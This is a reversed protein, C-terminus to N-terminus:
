VFGGKFKSGALVGLEDPLNIGYDGNKFEIIKIVDKEGPKDLEYKKGFFYIILKDERQYGYEIKLEDNSFFDYDYIYNIKLIKGDEKKIKQSYKTVNCLHDFVKEEERILDGVQGIIEGSIIIKSKQKSIKNKESKNHKSYGIGPWFRKEKGQDEAKDKREASGYLLHFTPKLFHHGDPFLKKDKLLIYNFETQSDKLLHGCLGKEIFKKNHVATLIRNYSVKEQALNLKYQEAQKDVIDMGELYYTKIEADSMGMRAGTLSDILPNPICLGISTKEKLLKKCYEKDFYQALNNLYKNLKEERHETYSPLLIRNYYKEKYFSRMLREDYLDIELNEVSVTKDGKDFIEQRIQEMKYDGKKRGEKDKFNYFAVFEIDEDLNQYFQGIKEITGIYRFSDAKIEIRATPTSRNFLNTYDLKIKKIINKGSVVSISQGVDESDILFKNDLEVKAVNLADDKFFAEMGALLGPGKIVRELVIFNLDQGQNDNSNTALPITNYMRTAGFYGKFDLFSKFAVEIGQSIIQVWSIDLEGSKDKLYLRYAEKFGEAIGCAFKLYFFGLILLFSTQSVSASKKCAKKIYPIAAASLVGSIKAAFANLKAEFIIEKRIQDESLERWDKKHSYHVTVVAAAWVAMYEAGIDEITNLVKKPNGKDKFKKVYKSLKHKKISKGLQYLETSMNKANMVAKKTNSSKKGYKILQGLNNDQEVNENLELATIVGLNDLRKATNKILEGSYKTITTPSKM